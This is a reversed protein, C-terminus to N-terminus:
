FANRLKTVRKSLHGLPKLRVSPFRTYPFTDPTRIGEKGCYVFAGLPHKKQKFVQPLSTQWFPNLLFLLSAIKNNKLEGVKPDRLLGKREAISLIVRLTNKRNLPKLYLPVLLSAQALLPQNNNCCYM